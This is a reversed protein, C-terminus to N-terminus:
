YNQPPKDNSWWVGEEFADCGDHEFRVIGDFESQPNSCAGYDEIFAGTLPIFFKCLLCQQDFWDDQYDESDVNRNRKERWREHCRTFHELSNVLSSCEADQAAEQLRFQTARDDPRLRLAEQWAAVAEIKKGTQWLEQGLNYYADAHTPDLDIIERYQLIANELMGKQSLCRGTLFLADMNLPDLLFATNLERMAVDYQSNMYLASASNYHRRSLLREQETASPDPEVTLLLPEEAYEVSHCHKRLMKQASKVWKSELDRRAVKSWESCAERIRGFQFLSFALRYHAEVDEPNEQFRQLDLRCSDRLNRQLDLAHGLCASAESFDPYQELIERWAAIAKPLQLNNRWEQAQEHRALVDAPMEKKTERDQDSV